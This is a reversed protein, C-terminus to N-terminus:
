LDFCSPVILGAPVMRGPYLRGLKIPEKTDLTLLGPMHSEFERPSNLNVGCKIHAPDFRYLPTEQGGVQEVERVEMGLQHHDQKCKAREAGKSEAM